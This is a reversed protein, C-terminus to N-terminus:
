QVRNVVIGVAQEDWELQLLAAGAYVRVIADENNHAYRQDWPGKGFSPPLPIQAFPNEHVSIGAGVEDSGPQGEWKERVSWFEDPALERGLARQQTEVEIWFRRRGAQQRDITLLSSLWTNRITTNTGRRYVVKGHDFFEARLQSMDGVGTEADIPFTLVRDGLMAGYITSVNLRVTVNGNDVLVMSCPGRGKYPRFQKRVEGIKDRIGQYRNPWGGFTTVAVAQAFEKVEFYAARGDLEFSYDIRTSIEANDEEYVFHDIGVSRLYSEFELEGPTHMGQTVEEVM